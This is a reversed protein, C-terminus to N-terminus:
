RGRRGSNRSTSVPKTKGAKAPAAQQQKGKGGRASAAQQPQPKGGKAPLQKTKPQIRKSMTRLPYNPPTFM